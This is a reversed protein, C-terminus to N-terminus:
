CVPAPKIKYINPEGVQNLNLSHVWLVQRLAELLAEPQDWLFGGRPFAVFKERLKMEETWLIQIKTRGVIEVLLDHVSTAKWDSETPVPPPAACGALSLLAVAVPCCLRIM